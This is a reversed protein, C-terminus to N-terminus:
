APPPPPIDGMGGGGEGGSIPSEIGEEDMGMDFDEVGMDDGMDPRIGLTGLDDTAGAAGSAEGEAKTQNEEKWMTENKVIEDESLGLWRELAFRKSIYPTDAISAWTSIRSNDLEIQRYRAFNQPVNLILQFLSSDIQVDESKLYLKFENDFTDNVWSQVRECLKQFRYEAILATTARGDNYVASDDSSAGSLYSSPIQLGQKLKNDFYDLDNISGLNDGGPLTDVRSGRGDANQPFFFDETMSMPNFTADLINQNGQGKTPIRRQNIENKVRELYAMVRHAPMNGVDVYFVRREPARHVRYILIADEILEKQKYAKYVRELHSNGFPWNIDLGSSLSLHIMHEAPVPVSTGDTPIASTATMGHGTTKPQKALFGTPFSQAGGKLTSTKTFEMSMLNLDPNKIWYQEPKKGNADDVVVREVNYPDIWMWRYTEPDRVFFADGYKLTHRIIDRLRKDFDNIETWERLKSSLVEIEAESAEDKFEYEFYEKSKEEKQTSFESITDLAASIVSDSDMIDYQNYRELRNSPGAYVEYLPSTENAKLAGGKQEASTTNLWNEVSAANPVETFHKRWTM